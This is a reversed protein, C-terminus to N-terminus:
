KNIFVTHQGPVLAVIRKFKKQSQRWATSRDHSATVVEYSTDGNRQQFIVTYTMSGFGVNTTKM